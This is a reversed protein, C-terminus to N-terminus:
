RAEAGKLTFHSCLMADAANAVDGVADYSVTCEELEATQTKVVGGSRTLAVSLKAQVFSLM